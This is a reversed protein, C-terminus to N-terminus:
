GNDDEKLQEWEDGFAEKGAEDIVRQGEEGKCYELLLQHSPFYPTIVGGFIGVSMDQQWGIAYKPGQSKYVTSDPLLNLVDQLSNFTFM